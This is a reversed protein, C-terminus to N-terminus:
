FSVPTELSLLANFDRSSVTMLIDKPKTPTHPSEFNCSAPTPFNFAHTNSDFKASKNIM